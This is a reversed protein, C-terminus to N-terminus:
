FSNNSCNFNLKGLWGGGFIVAGFVLSFYGTQLASREPAQRRKWHSVFKLVAFGRLETLLQPPQVRISLIVSV